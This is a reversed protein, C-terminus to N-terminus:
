NTIYYTIEEMTRAYTEKVKTYNEMYDVQEKLDKNLATAADYLASLSLNGAVGKLTHAAQEAQAFDLTDKDLAVEIQNFYPNETFKKLLIKFIAENGGFRSLAEKKCIIQEKV